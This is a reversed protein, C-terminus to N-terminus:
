RITLPYIESGVALVWSRRPLITSASKIHEGRNWGNLDFAAPFHDYQVQQGATHDGITALNERNHAVSMERLSTLKPRLAYVWTTWLIM